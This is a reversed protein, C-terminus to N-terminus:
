VQQYVPYLHEEEDEIRRVLAEGVAEFRRIFNKDIVADEKTYRSLFSNVEKGVGYMETKMFSIIEATGQDSIAHKLYTYLSVNEKLLHGRFLRKFNNLKRKTLSADGAKAANLTEGYLSLLKRHEDLLVPILNEKYPIKTNPAYSHTDITEEKKIRERVRSFIKKFM